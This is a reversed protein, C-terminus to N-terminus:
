CLLKEIEDKDLRTLDSVRVCSETNDDFFLWAYTNGDRGNNFTLWERRLMEEMRDATFGCDKLAELGARKEDDKLRLVERHLVTMILLRVYIPCARDGMCWSEVTRKPIYFERAFEAQTMDSDIIIDKFSKHIVDHIFSLYEEDVEKDSVRYLGSNQSIFYYKSEEEQAKSLLINRVENESFILPAQYYEYDITDIYEGDKDLEEEEYQLETIYTYGSASGTDSTSYNDKFRNFAAKAEERNDGEYLIDPWRESNERQHDIKEKILQVDYEDISIKGRLETKAKYITYRKM